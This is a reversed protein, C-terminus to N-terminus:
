GRSSFGPDGPQPRRNQRSIALLARAKEMSQETKNGKNTRVWTGFAGAGPGVMKTTTWWRRRGLKELQSHRMPELPGAQNLPYWQYRIFRRDDANIWTLLMWDNDFDTSRICMEFNEGSQVISLASGTSQYGCTAEIMFNTAAESGLNRLKYIHLTKLGLDDEDTREYHLWWSVAAFRRRFRMEAAIVLAFTAPSLIATLWDALNMPLRYCGDRNTGATPSSAHKKRGPQRLPM